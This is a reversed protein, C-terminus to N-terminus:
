RGGRRTPHFGLGSVALRNQYYLVLNTEGLTFGGDARMLVARTHYGGWARVAEDILQAPRAERLGPALAIQQADEMARARDALDAVRRELEDGPISFTTATACSRSSTPRPTSTASSRRLGRRRRAVHADGVTEAAYSRCIAEGLERTYQADRAEDTAPVGGRMAYTAPDVERGHRHLM